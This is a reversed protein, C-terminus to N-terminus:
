CTSTGPTGAPKCQSKRGSSLRRRPSLRAHALEGPRRLSYEWGPADGVRDAWTKCFQEYGPHDALLLLLCAYGILDDAESVLESPECSALSENVRAYDAAARNWDGQLVHLRARVIWPLRDEPRLARLRTFVEDSRIAEYSPGPWLPTGFRQLAEAYLRASRDWQKSEALVSALKFHVDADNPLHLIVEELAAIAEDLKGEARLTDAEDNLIRARQIDPEIIQVQWSVEPFAQRPEVANVPRPEAPPKGWDLDMARLQRRIEGLDWIQLRHNPTAVVLTSGDGNFCLSHWGQTAEPSELAALPEGTEPNVLQIVSRTMTMALLRSDPTFAVLGPM